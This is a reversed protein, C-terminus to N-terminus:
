FQNSKNNQSRQARYLKNQVSQYEDILIELKKNLGVSEPEVAMVDQLKENLKEVTEEEIQPRITMVQITCGGGRKLVDVTGVNYWVRRRIAM